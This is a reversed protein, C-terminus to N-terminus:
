LPAPAAIPLSAYDFEGALAGIDLPRLPPRGTAQGVDVRTRGSALGILRAVADECLRGGCPGMGCRTAARLENITACGAAIATDLTARTLQECQCMLVGPALSDVAGDGVNALRAMAGGFRAARTRERKAPAARAGRSAADLRALDRAVAMAAVRG